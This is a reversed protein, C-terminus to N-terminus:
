KAKSRETRVSMGIRCENVNTSGPVDWVTINSLSNVSMDEGMVYWEREERVTYEIYM